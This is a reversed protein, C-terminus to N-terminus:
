RPDASPARAGRSVCLLRSFYWGHTVDPVLEVSYTDCLVLNQQRNMEVM